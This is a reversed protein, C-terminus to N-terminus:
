YQGFFTSVMNCETVWEAGDRFAEFGASLVAM